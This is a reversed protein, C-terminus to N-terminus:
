GLRGHTGCRRYATTRGGRRVEGSAGGGSSGPRRSSGRQRKVYAAHRMDSVQDAHKKRFRSTRVRQACCRHSRETLLREKEAAREGRRVADASAADAIL